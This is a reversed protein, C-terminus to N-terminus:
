YSVQQFFSCEWEKQGDRDQEEAGNEEDEAVIELVREEGGIKLGLGPGM